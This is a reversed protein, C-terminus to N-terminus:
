RGVVARLADLIETVSPYDGLTRGRHLWRVIGPPELIAVGPAQLIDGTLRGQRAHGVSRLYRRWTSLRLWQDWHIREIGLARYLQKDPDILAPFPLGDAMLKQAQYDAGTAVALVDAGLSTIEPHADRLQSLLNLCPM